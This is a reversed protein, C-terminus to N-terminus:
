NMFFFQFPSCKSQSTIIAIIFSSLFILIMSCAILVKIINIPKVHFFHYTTIAYIVFRFFYFYYSLREFVINGAVLAFLLQGIFFLNYYIIVGHNKYTEKLEKSYFIVIFNILLVSYNLVGLGSRSTIEIKRIYIDANEIYNGYGIFVFFNSSYNLLLDFIQTGFVFVLTLLSYQLYRNYFIDKNLIFYLPIFIIVSKHFLSALAIILVYRIFEKTEVFRLAYMLIAFAIMHRIINNSHFILGSTFYYFILYPLFKNLPKIAKYLFVLTILSSLIFLFSFHAGTLNLTDILFQFGLELNEREIFKTQYLDLYTLYDVGVDYRMGLILSALVIPIITKYNWYKENRLTINKAKNIAFGVMMLLLFFYIYFALGM